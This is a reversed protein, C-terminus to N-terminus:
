DTLKFKVIEAVDIGAFEMLLNSIQGKGMGLAVSGDSSGLMAAISNGSGTLDVHGGVRGVADSALKVNPLLKALTLRTADIDAHTRIPSRR